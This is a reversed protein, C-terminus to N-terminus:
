IMCTIHGLQAIKFYLPRTIMIRGYAASERKIKPTGQWIALPLLINLGGGGGPDWSGGGQERRGQWNQYSLKGPIVFTNVSHPKILLDNFLARRKFEKELQGVTLLHRSSIYSKECNVALM